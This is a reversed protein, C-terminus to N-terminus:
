EANWVNSGHSLARMDSYKGGNRIEVSYLQSIVDNVLLKKLVQQTFGEVSEAFSM